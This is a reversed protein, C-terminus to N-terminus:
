EDKGCIGYFFLYNMEEIFQEFHSHQRAIELIQESQRYFIDIYTLITPTSIKSSIEGREKGENILRILISIVKEKYEAEFFRHMEDDEIMLEKPANTSSM